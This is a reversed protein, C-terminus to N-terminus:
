DVAPPAAHLAPVDAAAILEIENFILFGSVVTGNEPHQGFSRVTCHRQVGGSCQDLQRQVVTWQNPKNRREYFRENKLHDTGVVASEYNAVEARLCVLSGIPFTFGYDQEDPM